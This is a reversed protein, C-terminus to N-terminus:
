LPRVIISWALEHEWPTWDVVEVRDSSKLKEELKKLVRTTPPHPKVVGDDWLVAVKLRRGKWLKSVDRWEFAALDPQILWPKGELVTKTFLEVGALSTSLPGITGAIAETGLMTVAWGVVPLRGSTPKFGFLGNNAAPSRISGGIDTGIGLVSGRLGVLAGEGGSSGGATLNRNYPNV